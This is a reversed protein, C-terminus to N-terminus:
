EYNNGESVWQAGCVDSCFERKRGHNQQLTACGCNRCVALRRDGRYYSRYLLKSFGSLPRITFVPEQDLIDDQVVWRGAVIRAEEIDNIPTLDGHM